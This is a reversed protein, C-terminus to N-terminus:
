KEVGPKVWRGYEGEVLGAKIAEQKTQQVAADSAQQCTRVNFIFFALLACFFAGYCASATHENM